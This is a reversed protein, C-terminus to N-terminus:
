PVSGRGQGGHGHIEHVIRAPTSKVGTALMHSVRHNGNDVVLHNDRTVVVLPHRSDDQPLKSTDFQAVKKAQIFPQRTKLDATNVQGMKYQTRDVAGITGAYVPIPSQKYGPKNPDDALSNVFEQAQRSQAAGAEDTYRGSAHRNPNGKRVPWRSWYSM